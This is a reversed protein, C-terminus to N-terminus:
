AADLEPAPVTRNTIDSIEVGYLECLRVLTSASPLGQGVEIKSIAAKQVGVAQAVQQQTYGLVHRRTRFVSGMLALDIVTKAAGNQQKEIQNNLVPHFEGILQRELDALQEIEAMLWSIRISGITELHSRRHHGSRWRRALSAARGIYLVRGDADTVFYVGPADPLQLRPPLAVSPLSAIDIV